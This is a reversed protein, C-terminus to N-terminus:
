VYESTTDARVTIKYGVVSIVRVAVGKEILTGDAVVDYEKNDIVAKGAPVLPTATIGCEDVLHDYNALRETEEILATDTKKVCQDLVKSLYFGLALFGLGSSVFILLTYQLQGFQYVNRPIVFTQSALVIAALSLIAGGIGFIGIGPLVFIELLICAVGSLFLMIELWGSTGGLVSLWFYLTISLIAVFAGIGIGPTKAEIMIGFWALLVLTILMGPASLIQVLKDTWMPEILAPDNELGFLTKFEAFNKVSHDVLYQQGRGEVIELLKGKPKIIEGLTWQEKNPLTDWEEKCLYEVSQDKKAKHVEINPDILAVPLSWSRMAEKAVLNKVTPAADDIQKQSFVVTGDGGLTANEGLVIEDCAVAILAADSRAQYPVYIVTKIQTRDIETALFTALHLSASLNGGPSDVALCLFDVQQGDALSRQINRIVTNVRDLSIIGNLDVRVAHGIETKVPTIALDDPKISLGRAVAIRDDALYDVLGTKRALMASFVGQQGAAILTEANNNEDQINTNILETGNDTEIQLLASKQNLLKEIVASPINRRKAIDFYAQREINNLPENPPSIEADGSMMREKCSLAVLLHHGSVTQPLFAVTRVRQFKEGSLLDAIEYCAGFSSDQGHLDENQVINLQLVLIRPPNKSDFRELTKKLSDASKGTLPLTIDLM